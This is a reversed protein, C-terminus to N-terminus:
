NYTITYIVSAQITGAKMGKGTRVLRAGLPFTIDSNSNIPQPLAMNTSLSLPVWSDGQHWGLQIAIGRAADASHAIDIVGRAQDLVATQPTLTMAVTNQAREGMATITGFRTKNQLIQEYFVGNSANGHFHACGTLTVPTKMWPTAVAGQMFAHPTVSSFSYNFDPTTCGPVNIAFGHGEFRSTIAINQWRNDTDAVAISVSPLMNNNARGPTINGMKVAVIQIDFTSAPQTGNEIDAIFPMQRNGHYFKIGVGPIGSQWVNTAGPYLTGEVLQYGLAIPPRTCNITVSAYGPSLQRYIVTGVPMDAGASYDVGRLASVTSQPQSITCVALAAKSSLLGTLALALVGGKARFYNMIMKMM